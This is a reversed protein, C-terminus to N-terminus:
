HKAQGQNRLLIEADIAALATRCLNTALSPGREESEKQLADALDARLRQPDLQVVLASMLLGMAMETSKVLEGLMQKVFAEDM